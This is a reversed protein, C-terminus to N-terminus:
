GNPYRLHEIIIPKRRRGTGPKRNRYQLGLRIAANLLCCVDFANVAGDKLIGIIGALLLAAVLARDLLRLWRKNM